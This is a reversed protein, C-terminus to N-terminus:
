KKPRYQRSAPNMTLTGKSVPPNTAAKGEIRKKEWEFVRLAYFNGKKGAKAIDNLSLFYGQYNASRGVPDNTRCKRSEGKIPWGYKNRLQEIIAALRYTSAEQQFTLHSLREARLLRALVRSPMAGTKPPYKM